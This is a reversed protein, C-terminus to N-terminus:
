QPVVINLRRKFVEDANCNAAVIGSCGSADVTPFNPMGRNTDVVVTAEGTSSLTVKMRGETGAPVPPITITISQGPTATATGVVTGGLRVVTAVVNYAGSQHTLRLYEYGYNILSIDGNIDNPNYLYFITPISAEVDLVAASYSTCSDSRVNPQLATTTVTPCTPLTGARRKLTFIGLEAASEAATIAPESLFVARSSRIEQMTFFGVTLTILTVGSLILVSILLTVGAQKNMM